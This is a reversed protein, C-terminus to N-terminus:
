KKEIIAKEIRVESLGAKAVHKRDGEKGNAEGPM